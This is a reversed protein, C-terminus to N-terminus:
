FHLSSIHMLCRSWAWCIRWLVDLSINTILNVVYLFDSELWIFNWPYKVAFEIAYIVALLEVEFAYAIGVMISFCDKVFGRYTRFAGGCGLLGFNGNSAGDTNVKIWGLLPPDPLWFLQLFGLLSGRLVLRIYFSYIM